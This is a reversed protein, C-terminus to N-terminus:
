PLDYPRVIVKRDLDFTIDVAGDVMEPENQVARVSAGTVASIEAASYTDAPNVGAGLGDGMPFTILKRRQRLSISLFFSPTIFWEGCCKHPRPSIM